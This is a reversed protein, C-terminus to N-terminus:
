GGKQISLMDTPPKIQGTDEQAYGCHKGSIHFFKDPYQYKDGKDAQNDGNEDFFIQPGFMPTDRLESPAGRGPTPITM